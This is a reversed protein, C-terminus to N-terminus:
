ATVGCPTALHNAQQPLLGSWVQEAVGQCWTHSSGADSHKVQQSAAMLQPVLQLIVCVVEPLVHRRSAKVNPWAVVGNHHASPGPAARHCPLQRPQPPPSSFLLFNYTSYLIHRTHPSECSMDM